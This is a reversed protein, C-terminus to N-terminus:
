YVNEMLYIEEIEEETLFKKEILESLRKEM